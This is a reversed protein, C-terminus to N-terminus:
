IFGMSYIKSIMLYDEFIQILKEPFFPHVKINLKYKSTIKFQSYFFTM